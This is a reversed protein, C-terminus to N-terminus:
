GASKPDVPYLLAGTWIMTLTELLRNWEVDGFDSVTARHLNRENAWLLASAIETATAEDTLRGHQKHLAMITKATPQVFATVFDELQQWLKADSSAGDVFARMLLREEQWTEIVGQLAQQLEQIPDEHRGEFLIRASEILSSQVEEILAGLAEYKSEFYFYFTPRSIGAKRTFDLVGLAEFKRGEALLARVADLLQRRRADGRM